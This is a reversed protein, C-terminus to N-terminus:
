IEMSQNEAMDMLLDEVPDKGRNNDEHCKLGSGIERMFQSYKKAKEEEKGDIEAGQDEVDAWDTEIRHM